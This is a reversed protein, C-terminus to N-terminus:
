RDGVLEIAVGTQAAIEAALQRADAESALRFVPPFREGRTNRLRIRWSARRGRAKRIRSGRDRPPRHLEIAEIEAYPWQLDPHARPEGFAVSEGTFVTRSRDTAVGLATILVLAGMSAGVLAPLWPLAGARVAAASGLLLAAGVAANVVSGFDRELVLERGEPANRYRYAGFRRIQQPDSARGRV